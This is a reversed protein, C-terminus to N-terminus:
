VHVMSMVQPMSMCCQFTCAAHIYLLSMYCPCARVLLLFMCDFEFKFVFGLLLWIKIYSDFCKEKYTCAKDAMDKETKM